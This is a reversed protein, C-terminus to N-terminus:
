AIRARSPMATVASVIDAISNSKSFNQWIMQMLVPRTTLLVLVPILGGGEATLAMDPGPFDTVPSVLDGVAYLRTERPGAVPERSIYVAQHRVGLHLGTSTM